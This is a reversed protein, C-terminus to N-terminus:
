IGRQAKDYREDARSTCQQDMVSSWLGKDAKFGSHGVICLRDRVAVRRGDVTGVGYLM